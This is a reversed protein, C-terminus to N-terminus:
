FSPRCIRHIWQCEPEQPGIELACLRDVTPYVDVYAITPVAAHGSSYGGADNRHYTASDHHDGLVRLPLVSPKGYRFLSETFVYQARYGKADVARQPGINRRAADVGGAGHCRGSY